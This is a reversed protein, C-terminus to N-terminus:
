QQRVAASSACRHADFFDFIEPLAFYWATPHDGNPIEVFRTDVGAARVREALARNVESLALQDKEGNLFLAGSLYKLRTVPFDLWPPGDSPAIACWMGQYKQALHLTGTMGMSNGMLYIRRRDINYDNIVRQVVSMVDAEALDDERDSHTIKLNAAAPLRLHAGYDGQGEHGRPAVVIFHHKDAERQVIGRLAEPARDFPGNQDGGYGHLVVVLADANTGDYARPVYLRYSLTEGTEALVYYRTMDGTVIEPPQAVAPAAGDTMGVGLWAFHDDPESAPRSEIFSAASDISGTGRYKARMPYAFIPRRRPTGDPLVVAAPVSDPVAGREVWAVMAGLLDEQYPLYGGGCHYVGPVLFMRAFSRAADLGGASDRVRQYYDLLVAPGAPSDAAGQWLILKGGSERYRNLDPNPADYYGGRDFLARLGQEDFKWNEWDLDLPYDGGYIMYKIQNIALSSGISTLSGPSTWTLESGYPEGGPYLHRGQSDIPGQYLQRMVEAQEQTICQAPPQGSRCILRKPDYHCTRPDDIQGDKLGDLADCAKMVAEHLLAVADQTLISRHGSDTALRTEWIIREVGPTIWVAPAGAVIGAFDGPFRQAEMLGERGGNSCGQFYSVAPPAGYFAAIIAKAALATVHAARYAFDIRVEPDTAAWTTDMPSSGVHGSNEFAVAFSGARALTTDCAPAFQDGIRGCAGGCGGQLYRGTYTKTPLRLEFQVQPAVYGKVLCIEPQTATAAVIEAASISTPADRVGAFDRRALAGCDSAPTIVPRPPLDIMTVLAAPPPAPQAVAPPPEAAVIVSNMLVACATWAFRELSKM